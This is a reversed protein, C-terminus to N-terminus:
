LLIILDKEMIYNNHLGSKLNILVLAIFKNDLIFFIPLNINWDAFPLPWVYILRKDKAM